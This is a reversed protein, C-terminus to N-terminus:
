ASIKRLFFPPLWAAHGLYVQEFDSEQSALEQSDPGAGGGQAIWEGGGGAACADPVVRVDCYLRRLGGVCGCGVFGVGCLGVCDVDCGSGSEVNAKLMPRWGQEVPPLRQLATAITAFGEAIVIVRDHIETTRESVCKADYPQGALIVASGAWIERAASHRIRSVQGFVAM